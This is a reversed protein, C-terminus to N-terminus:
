AIGTSEMFEHLITDLDKMDGYDLWIDYTKFESGGEQTPEEQTVELLVASSVSYHTLSVNGEKWKVGGQSM